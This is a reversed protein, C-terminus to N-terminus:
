ITLGAAANLHGAEEVLPEALARRSRARLSARATLRAARAKAADRLLWWTRMHFHVLAIDPPLPRSRLLLTVTPHPNPNSPSQARGPRRRSV